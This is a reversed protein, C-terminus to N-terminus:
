AEVAVFVFDTSIDINQAINSVDDPLIFTFEVNENGQALALERGPSDPRDLLDKLLGSFLLSPEAAEPSAVVSVFLRNALVTAMRATTDGASKWDASVFYYINIDGTNSVNVVGSESDGPKMESITLVAGAPSVSIGVTATSTTSTATPSAEATFTFFPM